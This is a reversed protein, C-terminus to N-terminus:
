YVVIEASICTEQLRDQENGQGEGCCFGERESLALPM